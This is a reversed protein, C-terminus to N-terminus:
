RCASHQRSIGKIPIGLRKLANYFRDAPLPVGPHALADSVKLEGGLVTVVLGKVRDLAEDRQSETSFQVTSALPRGHFTARILLYNGEGRGLFTASRQGLVKAMEALYTLTGRGLGHIAQEFPTLRPVLAVNFVSSALGPLPLRGLELLARGQVTASALDDFAPSCSPLTM